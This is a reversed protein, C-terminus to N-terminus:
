MIKQLFVTTKILFATLNSKKIEYPVGEIKSLDRDEIMKLYMKLDQIIMNKDDPSNMNNIKVCIEDIKMYLGNTRFLVDNRTAPSLHGAWLTHCFSTFDPSEKGNDVKVFFNLAYSILETIKNKTYQKQVFSDSFDFSELKEIANKIFSIPIDSTDIMIMRGHFKIVPFMCKILSVLIYLLIIALLLLEISTIGVSFVISIILDLLDINVNNVYNLLIKNEWLNYGFISNNIASGLLFYIFVISAVGSIKLLLDAVEGMYDMVKSFSTYFDNLVTVTLTLQKYYGIKWGKFTLYDIWEDKLNLQLKSFIISTVKKYIIFILAILLLTVLVRTELEPIIQRPILPMSNPIETM